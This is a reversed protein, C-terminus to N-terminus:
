WVLCCVYTALSIKGIEAENPPSIKFYVYMTSYCYFNINNEQFLFYIWGVSNNMPVFDCSLLWLYLLHSSFFVKEGNCFILWRQCSAHPGTSYIIYFFCSKKKFDESIICIGTCVNGKKWSVLVNREMKSFYITLSVM